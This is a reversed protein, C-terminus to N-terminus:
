KFTISWSRLEGLNGRRQDSVKLSWLGQAESKQTLELQWTQGKSYQGPNSLNYHKGEPSILQVAIDGSDSHFIDAKVMVSQAEFQSPVDISSTIGYGRNDPIVHVTSSRYETGGDSLVDVNVMAEDKNGSSDIISATVVHQGVSLEASVEAGSAIDGDLNSAWSINQSIDGDEPDIATAVFAIQTNQPFQQGSSPQQIRISPYSDPPEQINVIVVGQVPISGDSVTYNFQVVGIYDSPAFFHVKNMEIAVSGYDPETIDIITLVDGNEDLDNALVDILMSQGQYLTVSDAYAVPAINDDTVSVFVSAQSLGGYSDDIQYTFIDEGIFNFSPSYILNNGLLTVEGNGPQSFSTISLSDSDTDTDNALVDISVPENKFTSVHDSEAVPAVNVRIVKVIVSAGSIGGNGDSIEYTFNDEGIFDQRPTYVLTNGSQTVVGQSGQTFSSINLPDGDADTDNEIVNIAITTSELTEVVDNQAQPFNNSVSSQEINIVVNGSATGGKTDSISYSFSDQGVFDIEPLYSFENNQITLEGNLPSTYSDIILADGDEDYDNELVSFEVALNQKTYVLDDIAVPAKNPAQINIVVSGTAEGGHGDAVKYKFGDEGQQGDRATYLFTDNEVQLLGKLPLTYASLYLQDGDKDTDNEIVDFIATEGVNVAYFDSNAVPQSNVFEIVNLSVKATDSGKKRLNTEVDFDEITYEFSDSGIFNEAPVYLIENGYNIVSGNSPATIQVIHLRDNDLDVDNDLVKLASQEGSYVTYSDDNAVPPANKVVDIIVSATDFGNKKVHNSPYVDVIEYTFKDSGFFGENPTYTIYSGNNEITGNAPQTVSKIYLLDDDSDTDNDRVHLTIAEGFSVANDDVADPYNNPGDKCGVFQWCSYFRTTGVFEEKGTLYQTFKAHIFFDTLTVVTSEGALTFERAPVKYRIKNVGKNIDVSSVGFNAIRQGQSNRAKVSIGFEGEIQSDVEYALNIGEYVGDGNEDLPSEEFNGIYMLEPREWEEFSYYNTQAFENYSFHVDGKYSLRLTDVVFSGSYETQRLERGSFEFILYDSTSDATIKARQTLRVGDETVLSVIANLHDSFTGLYTIAFSIQLIDFYGDDDTDVTEELLNKSLGIYKEYVRFKKTFNTVLVESDASLDFIEVYLTYVGVTLPEFYFSYLGDKAQFDGYMGNDAITFEHMKQGGTSITYRVKADLYPETGQNIATYIPIPTNVFVKTDSEGINTLYSLPHAENVINISFQNAGSIEGRLLFKGVPANNIEIVWSASPSLLAQLINQPKFDIIKTNFSSSNMANVVSGDPMVIEINSTKISATNPIRIMLNGSQYNDFNCTFYGGEVEVQKNLSLSNFSIFAYLNFSLLFLFLPIKFIKM